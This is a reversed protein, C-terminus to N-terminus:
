QQGLPNFATDTQYVTFMTKVKTTVRPNKVEVGGFLADIPNRIFQHPEYTVTGEITEAVNDVNKPIGGSVIISNFVTQDINLYQDLYNKYDRRIKNDDRFLVQRLTSNESDYNSVLAYTQAAQMKEIVYEKSIMNAFLDLAVTMVTLIVLIFIMGTMGVDGGKNDAKLFRLFSM